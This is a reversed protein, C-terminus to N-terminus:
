IQPPLSLDHDAVGPNLVPAEERSFLSRARSVPVCVYVCICVRVCVCKM